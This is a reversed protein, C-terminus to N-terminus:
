GEMQHQLDDAKRCEPRLHSGATASLCGKLSNRGTLQSRMNCPFAQQAGLVRCVPALLAQDQVQVFGQHVGGELWHGVGVEDDRDLNLALNTSSFGIQRQM